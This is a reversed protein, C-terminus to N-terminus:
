DVAAKEWADLHPLLADIPLTHAEHTDERRFVVRSWGSMGVPRLVHHGIRLTAGSLARLLV